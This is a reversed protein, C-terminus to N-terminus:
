RYSSGLMSSFAGDRRIPRWQGAKLKIAISM